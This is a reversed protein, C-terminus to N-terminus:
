RCCLLAANSAGQGKHRGFSVRGNRAHGCEHRLLIRQIDVDHDLNQSYQVILHPM